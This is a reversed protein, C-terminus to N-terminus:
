NSNTNSYVLDGSLYTKLVKTNPTLDLDVKMLDRDIVIFDAFKNKEISGKENEEFNLYAAWITMGKLTEERSLANSFEFGGEPYNDLDKRATAAYFTHFPNVKEVPFDTGLGIVKSRELLDKYAYAGKIRKPGVRDEAWYMDSTAHTPQVSPLIKESYGNIDNLDVIQSHEIRWRPDKKNSLVKSYENLLISITSDGIAHTNMQFNAVSLKTALKKISQIDTVLKGHNHIDDSYPKKLTAGRSGLAGDGYVKVSRVNLLDTKIHGKELFYNVDETSNSIMAYVRMKLKNKKQLSDILLIVEKSLGADDVTTLGHKFCIDQASLLADIKEQNSINGFAKDILSMPGDILVGTLKGNEIVVTGNKSKTNVDIKAVDLAKQNVLYAHGDIRELIIPTEPYLLDLKTKNPFKKITWDNQDWGRGRIVSKKDDNSIKDIIEGFSKTGTLDIVSQNLGLGYFHCHADILGPLVTSGNLNIINDSKYKSLIDDSGVDIFKGNEVAFASAKSFNEDVTYINGNHAILDVTKTCSQFFITVALILLINYFKILKKM